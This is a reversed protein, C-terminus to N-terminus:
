LPPYTNDPYPYNMLPDIWASYYFWTNYLYLYQFDFKYNPDAPMQVFRMYCLMAPNGIDTNRILIVWIKPTDTTNPGFQIRHHTLAGGEEDPLHSIAIDRSSALSISNVIGNHDCLVQHLYTKKDGKEFYVTAGEAAIPWAYQPTMYFWVSWPMDDTKISWVAHSDDFDARFYIKAADKATADKPLFCYADYTYGHLYNEDMAPGRETFDGDPYAKHMEENLEAQSM